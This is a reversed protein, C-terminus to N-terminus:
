TDCPIGFLLLFVYTEDCDIIVYVAGSDHGAKSRALMGTEYTM